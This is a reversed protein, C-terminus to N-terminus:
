NSLKDLLVCYMVDAMGLYGYVTPHVNDKQRVVIEPNRASFREEETPFDYKRNLNIYWPIIDVNDNRDGYEQLVRKNYNMMGRFMGDSSTYDSSYGVGDQYAPPTIM